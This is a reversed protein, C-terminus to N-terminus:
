KAIYKKGNKIVLGKYNNSVRQGSMNYIAGDVAKESKVASIGTFAEIDLWQIETENTTNGGNYISKIGIKDWNESYLDNLYIRNEYIDYDETFGYPIITLNETLKSHTAPTFTLPAVEGDTETFIEYFLKSAIMENGETDEIPVMFTIRWGYQSNEISAIWPNAPMAAIDQPAEPIIFRTGDTYSITAPAKLGYWYGTSAYCTWQCDFDLSSRNVQGTLKILGSADENLGRTYFDGNSSSGVLQPEIIFTGEYSIEVDIATEYDGFNYITVYKPDEEDQYIYVTASEEGWTMEGNAIVVNSSFIYSDWWYGAYDGDALATYWYSAFFISGDSFIYGEIPYQTEDDDAANLLVVNGFDSEYLVQGGEISITAIVGYEALEADVDESYTALIKKTAYSRFGEIAITSADEKSLKISWGGASPTADIFAGEDDLDLYDSIMMYDNSEMDDIGARRTAKTSLASAKELRARLNNASNPIKQTLKKTPVIQKAPKVIANAQLAPMNNKSEGNAFAVVAIFAAMLMLTFRKM